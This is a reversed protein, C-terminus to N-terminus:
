MFKPGLPRYDEALGVKIPKLISLSLDSRRSRQLSWNEHFFPWWLGCIKVLLITRNHSFRDLHHLQYHFYACILRISSFFQHHRRGASLQWENYACLKGEKRYIRVWNECASWCLHFSAYCAANRSDSTCKGDPQQTYIWVLKRRERSDYLRNREPLEKGKRRTIPALPSCALMTPGVM